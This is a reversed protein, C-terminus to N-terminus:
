KSIKLYEPKLVGSISFKVPTTYSFGNFEVKQFVPENKLSVLFEALNALSPIEGSFTFEGTKMNLSLNDLKVFYPLTSKIAELAKTPLRHNDIVEKIKAFHQYFTAAEQASFEEFVVQKQKILKQIEQSKQNFKNALFSSGFGLILALILVSILIFVLTKPFAILNEEM